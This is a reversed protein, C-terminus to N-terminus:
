SVTKTVDLDKTVVFFVKWRYSAAVHESCTAAHMENGLGPSSHM